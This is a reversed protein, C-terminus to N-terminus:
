KHIILKVDMIWSRLFAHELLISLLNGRNGVRWPQVFMFSECPVNSIAIVFFIALIVKGRLMKKFFSELLATKPKSKYTRM